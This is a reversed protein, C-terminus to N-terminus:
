INFFFVVNVHVRSGVIVEPTDNFNRAPEMVCQSL